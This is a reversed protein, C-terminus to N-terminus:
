VYGEVLFDEGIRKLKVDKLKWARDVLAVGNGMVAGIADKGGIIKPSIFFLM